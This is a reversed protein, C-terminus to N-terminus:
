VYCQKMPSEQLHSRRRRPEESSITDSREGFCGDLEVLGEQTWFEQELCCLFRLVHGLIHLLVGHYLFRLAM